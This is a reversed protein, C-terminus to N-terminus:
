AGAAAAFGMLDVPTGTAEAARDRRSARDIAIVLGLSAATLIWGTGGASLLPLAIGKTPGLGTVVLLNIMAQGLVMALVGVAVARLAPRKQERVIGVLAWGMILYISIVAIAGVLGTEECIVAFLFDTTDEPLYGFKQIGHGLGRGAVGGGAVTSMSQIMHYGSGKPDAFPDLFSLVREVRYPSEIIAALVGVAAVPVFILFHIIRGGAALLLVGAAAAILVGTGLDELVIFSSVVGVAAIAPLLGSFFRGLRPGLAAAYWAMLLIMGWKAIESPQMSGAVPLAIWRSSGNVSRGLGPVYVLALLALMIVVGAFLGACVYGIPAHMKPVLREALPAVPILSAFGMALVAMVLYVSARSTIVAQIDLLGGQVVADAGAVGDPVPRVTMGASNVMLVGIVLLALTCLFVTQGRTPM